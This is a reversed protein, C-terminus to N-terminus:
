KVKWELVGGSHGERLRVEIRLADTKVPTFRLKNYKDIEVAYGNFTEVEKWCEGDKFLLRWSEPIRCGGESPGDDYWYVEIESIKREKNFDYQIWEKTGKHAWWTLRPVAHDDSKEPEIGDNAATPSDTFFNYSSTARSLSAITPKPPLKAGSEEQAVWVQMQGVGRHNWLHYPVATLKVQSRKIGGNPNRDLKVGDCRVVWYGGLVDDYALELKSSDPLVTNLVSGDNDVAEFCYVIPGREIAVRSRDAEVKENAFVRRAQMPIAMEIQDGLNWKRTLVAYGDQIEYDVPINSVKIVVKESAAGEYHYLDGPMPKGLAWGPIRLKISFESPREPDVSLLINGEWPYNTKQSLKLGIEGVKMQATNSTFLNVFVADDKVAYVYSSLSPMFRAVNTPCCSCGFWSQREAKGHNFGYLGDSELPNEYFFKDGELSVGSLYGNYLTRELVDIYKSDGHLLFLRYNWLINAIAACTENYAEKNPLLYNADFAEGERRAGIGGTLYIKAGVVNNWIRDIAEIYEKDGTIAAIDAMATYMYVARVAHGVAEDQALVPKHDQAYEGYLKRDNRYGRENLFFKALELYRKEGTVRYLKILGIEIEQHGPVDRRKDPGFVSDVFDASKIAVNLLSRKGTALYHAVAAEYMHGVCYLEHGFQVDHWRKYGIAKHPPEVGITRVTYLYGDDEQAAAIKMILDDLYKELKPNDCRSLTYAAGELIKYVDSDNFYAGAHDGEMLGGAIAFNDIRGTEESKKFDFPITVHTNTQLRDAWLGQTFQVDTFPVPTIPYDKGVAIVDSNFITIGVAFIGIIIKKV